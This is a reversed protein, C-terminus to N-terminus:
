IVQTMRDTSGEDKTYLAKFPVAGNNRDTKHWGTLLDKTRPTYLRLPVAGNNRDTKHWGTLLDKTRSTYLRLHFLEM